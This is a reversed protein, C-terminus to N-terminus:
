FWRLKFATADYHSDFFIYHDCADEEGDDDDTLYGIEFAMDHETLWERVSEELILNPNDSCWFTALSTLLHYPIPLGIRM